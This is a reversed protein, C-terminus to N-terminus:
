KNNYGYQRVKLLSRKTHWDVIRVPHIHELRDRPTHCGSRLDKAGALRVRTLQDGFCPIRVNQLPDSAEPTPPIHASPQDPRSRSDVPLDPPVHDEDNAIDCIGAQSYIEHTWTELQDLVDVVDAYKKEDKMLVPLPVVVSQSAMETQYRCPTHDPVVANFFRFFEFSNCLIRGLFIRYRERTCRVEEEDLKLLDMFDVNKLDVNPIENSLDDGKVRDFVISTAVAHVSTNQKDSRMDHVKLTWDINDIVFVFTRGEKVLQVAQDFCHKGIEEQINYKM